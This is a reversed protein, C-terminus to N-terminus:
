GGSGCYVFQVRSPRECLVGGSCVRLSPEEAEALNGIPSKCGCTGRFLPGSEGGRALARGSQEGFGRVAPFLYPAPTSAFGHWFKGVRSRM